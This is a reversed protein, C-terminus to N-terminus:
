VGTRRVPCRKKDPIGYYVDASLNHADGDRDDNDQFFKSDSYDNSQFSYSFKAFLDEGARWMLFPTLQHRKLYSESDVWFFSPTYNLGFTLPDFTYKVYLDPISGTIDYQGLDNHWSQYHSYGAGAKLDKTNIFNYAGSFYAELVSDDEDAYMDERDLPELRVNDDYQYGIKLYLSYPKVIKKPKETEATQLWNLANAKLEETEANDRVYEFKEVAKGVRGINWYCIGAHYSANTRTTPSIEASKVLYRVAKGYRKLKYLSMGAHYHALANAPENKAVERFYKDAEAFNGRKYNVFAWDYQFGPITPNAIKVLNLHHAAIDYRETKLYTKGLFHNYFPNNPDFGLAKKLNKEAEEYDGDEYAFLGSKYYYEGDEEANAPSFMLLVSLIILFVDSIKKM